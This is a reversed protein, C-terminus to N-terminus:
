ERLVAVKQIEGIMNYNEKWNIVRDILAWKYNLLM